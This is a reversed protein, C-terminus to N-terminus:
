WLRKPRPRTDTGGGTPGPESRCHRRAPLLLAVHVEYTGALQRHLEHPDAREAYISRPFREVLQKFSQYSDRSAQQDRESLDQAALSGLIGLNDNFNVVGQLYLAYDVGPSSPNLKIFRELVSLAQAKEGTRWLVYAREIQAQQALTTGAARGELRQVAQNGQRLCRRGDGVQGRCVIEGAVMRRETRRRSGCGASALVVFLVAARVGLSGIAFCGHAHAAQAATSGTRFSLAIIHVLGRVVCLSIRV